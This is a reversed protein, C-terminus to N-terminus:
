SPYKIGIQSVQLEDNVPSYVFLAGSSDVVQLPVNLQKQTDMKGCIPHRDMLSKEFSLSFKRPYLLNGRQSNV